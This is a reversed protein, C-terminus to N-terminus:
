TDKRGLLRCGMYEKIPLLRVRISMTLTSKSFFSPFSHATIHCGVGFRCSTVQLAHVSLVSGSELLTIHTDCTM